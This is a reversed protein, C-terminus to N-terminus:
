TTTLLTRTLFCLSTPTSITTWTPPTFRLRETVFPTTDEAGSLIRRHRVVPNVAKYAAMMAFGVAKGQRDHEYAIQLLRREEAEAVDRKNPTKKVIKIM